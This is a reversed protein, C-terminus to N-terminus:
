EHEPSRDTQHEENCTGIESTQQHRAVRSAIAFDGHTSRKAGTPRAQNALQKNFCYRKKQPASECPDANSGSRTGNEHSRIGM